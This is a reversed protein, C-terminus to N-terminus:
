ADERLRDTMQQLRQNRFAADQSTRVASDENRNSSTQRKRVTSPVNGYHYILSQLYDFGSVKNFTSNGLPPNAIRVEDVAAKLENVHDIVRFTNTTQDGPIIDGMKFIHKFSTHPADALIDIVLNQGQITVSYGTMNKLAQMKDTAGEIQESYFNSVEQLLLRTQGSLLRITPERVAAAVGNYRAVFDITKARNGVELNFKAGQYRKVISPDVARLDAEIVQRAARDTRHIPDGSARTESFSASRGRIQGPSVAPQSIESDLPPIQTAM